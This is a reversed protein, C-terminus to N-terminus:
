KNALEIKEIIQIMYSLLCKKRYSENIAVVGKQKKSKLINSLKKLQVLKRDRAEINITKIEIHSLTLYEGVVGMISYAYLFNLEGSNENNLKSALIICFDVDQFCNVFVMSWGYVPAFNNDKISKNLQKNIFVIDLYEGRRAITNLQFIQDAFEKNEALDLPVRTFNMQSFDGSSWLKVKDLSYNMSSFLEESRALNPFFILHLSFYLIKFM